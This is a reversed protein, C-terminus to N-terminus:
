AHYFWYQAAYDVQITAGQGACTAPAAGGITKVRFIQQVDGVTDKDDIFLGGALPMGLVKLSLWAVSPADAGPYYESAATSAVKNSFTIGFDSSATHLNFTATKADATFYHHGSLYASAPGHNIQPSNLPTQYALTTLADLTDPGATAMCTANFLTAVAGIAVPTATPSACTYNQTGRGVAVHYLSYSANPQLSSPPFIANSLLCSSADKPLPDDKAKALRRSVSEYYKM